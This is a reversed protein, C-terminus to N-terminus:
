KKLKETLFLKKYFLGANGDLYHQMLEKLVQEYPENESSILVAMIEIFQVEEKYGPEYTKPQNYKEFLSPDKEILYLYLRNAFIDTMGENVTETHGLRKDPKGETMRISLGTQMITRKFDPSYKIVSKCISHSFEHILTRFFFKSNIIKESLILKDFVPIHYGEKFLNSLFSNKIEIGLKPMAEFYETSLGLEELFDPLLKELLSFIQKITNILEQKEKETLRKELSKDFFVGTDDRGKRNIEKNIAKGFSSKQFFSDFDNPQKEGKKINFNTVREYM